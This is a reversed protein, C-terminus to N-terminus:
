GSLSGCSILLRSLTSRSNSSQRARSSMASGISSTDKAVAAQVCPSALPAVIPLFRSHSVGSSGMWTRRVRAGLVSRRVTAGLNRARSEGRGGTLTLMLQLLQFESKSNGEGTTINLAGLGQSILNRFQAAIPFLGSGSARNLWRLAWGPWPKLSLRRCYHNFHCDKKRSRNSRRRCRRNRLITAILQLTYNAVM